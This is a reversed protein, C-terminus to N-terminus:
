NPFLYSARLFFTVFLGDAIGCDTGAGLVWSNFQMEGSFSGLFATIDQNEVRGGESVNTKEESWIGIGVGIVFNAYDDVDTTDPFRYRIGFIPGSTEYDDEDTVYGRRRPSYFEEESTYSASLYGLYAGLREALQYEYGLTYGWGLIDPAYIGFLQTGIAHQGRERAM